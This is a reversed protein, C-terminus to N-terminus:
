GIVMRSDKFDAEPGFEFVTREGRAAAERVYDAVAAGDTLADIQALRERLPAGGQADIRAEDMGTRWFDAVLKQEATPAALTAVHEAIQRRIELSRQRAIAGAGWGVQDGPIPNAAHWRDNAYAAFDRCANGKPDLDGVQFRITPTLKGGDLSWAPAATAVGPFAAQGLAAAVALSVAIWRRQGSQM